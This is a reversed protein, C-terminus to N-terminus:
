KQVKGLDRVEVMFKNQCNPCIFFITAHSEIPDYRYDVASAAMPSQNDCYMCLFYM